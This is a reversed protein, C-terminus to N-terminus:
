GKFKINRAVSLVIGMEILLFVVASGGYSIFPLTIGTNPITNTVVAINLIVQISIHAMVGVVLLAGFEDEANNAIVFFRWIMILFMLMVAGAGFLGLEECIVSFIMDNQAEPIYGLKQLSQGLGKGFIDGSGIAYLSQLTQFSKDSAYAEPDLWAEIRAFRYSMDSTLVGNKVLLVFIGAIVVLLAALIVYEKYNPTSVFIMMFVIGFIIIASSLNDTIFLVMASILATSGFLLGLGAKSYLNKGLRCIISAYFVIMGVKAVEAPQLSMGLNLWRRAGNVEYGLPTLVLLILVASVVYAPFAFREFIHYDMLIVVIMLVFGFITSVLQKKLFYASDGYHLNADYSSVSYLMVLGFCLLFIVVFLLTFDFFSKTKNQSSDRGAM